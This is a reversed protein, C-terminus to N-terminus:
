RSVRAHSRRNCLARWVGLDRVSAAPATAFAWEAFAVRPRGLVVEELEGEVSALKRWHAGDAPTPITPSTPGSCRSCSASQVHRFDPSPRTFLRELRM